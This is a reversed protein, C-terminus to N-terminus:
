RTPSETNPRRRQELLWRYLQPNNYTETWSDHGAEPYVTLRAHGGAQNVADVMEQSRRLPVVSDKAGHFVWIPLNVLRRATLVEGGGCIPVIAAFREPTYTALAWTGFGGMSLGTVYIRDEDVKYQAVVQDLLATLELPNWWHDPPCQPSVLLFPFNKGEEVLKPPGHRKVRELDKGREGAGHLFLVLPWAEKKDYDPPVYLLYDLTVEIKTQLRAAQQKGPPVAEDAGRGANAFVGWVAAVVCVVCLIKM